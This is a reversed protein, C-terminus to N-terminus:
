IQHDSSFVEFIDEDILRSLTIAIELIIRSHNLSGGSTTIIKGNRFESKCSAMEELKFYEEVTYLKEKTLVEAVM